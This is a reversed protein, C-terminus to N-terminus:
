QEIQLSSLIQDFRGSLGGGALDARLQLKPMSDEIAIVRWYDDVGRSTYYSIAQYNGIKLPAIPQKQVDQDSLICASLITTDPDDGNCVKLKNYDDVSTSITVHPVGEWGFEVKTSNNTLLEYSPPYKLKMGWEPKNLTPWNAFEDETSVEVENVPVDSNSNIKRLNMSFLIVVSLFLFLLLYTVASSNPSTVSQKRM